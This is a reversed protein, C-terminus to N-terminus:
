RVTLANLAAELAKLHKYNQRLPNQFKNTVKFLKQTWMPQNESGFIWGSYNKTEVVFVGYQSVFIHDIQTSGDPTILTVNHVAHYISKDLFYKASVKVLWEGFLGKFWPTKLFIVIILLPVLWWIRDRICM